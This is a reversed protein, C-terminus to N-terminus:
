IQNSYINSSLIIFVCLKVFHKFKYPIAYEHALQESHKREDGDDLGVDVRIVDNGNSEIEELGRQRLLHVLVRVETIQELCEFDLSDQDFTVLVLLQLAGAEDILAVSDLIPLILKKLIPFGILYRRFLTPAVAM